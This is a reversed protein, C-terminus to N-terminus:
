HNGSMPGRVIQFAVGGGSMTTAHFHDNGTGTARSMQRTDGSRESGQGYDSDGDFAFGKFAEIGEEGDHLHGTSDRNSCNGDAPPPLVGMAVRVSKTTDEAGVWVREVTM